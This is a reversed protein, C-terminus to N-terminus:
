RWIPSGPEDIRGSKSQYASGVERRSLGIDRLMSDDLSELESRSRLHQWWEGLVHNLQGWHSPGHARSSAASASTSMDAETGLLGRSPTGIMQCTLHSGRCLKPTQGIASRRDLSPRGKAESAGPGFTRVTFNSARMLSSISFRGSKASNTSGRSM